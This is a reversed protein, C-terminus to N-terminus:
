SKPQGDQLVKVFENLPLAGSVKRGNIVFSPTADIAYKAQGQEARKVIENKRAEDALCSDVAAKDMGAIGALQTLRM